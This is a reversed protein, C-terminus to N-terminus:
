ANLIVLSAFEKLKTIGMTVNLSVDIKKSFLTSRVSYVIQTLIEQVGMVFRSAGEQSMSWLHFQLTALVMPYRFRLYLILLMNSLSSIGNISTLITM